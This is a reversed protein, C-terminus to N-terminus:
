EDEEFNGTISFDLGESQVDIFFRTGDTFILLVEDNRHRVIQKVVKGCLLKTARAEEKELRKKPDDDWVASTKGM